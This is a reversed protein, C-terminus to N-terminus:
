AEAQEGFCCGLPQVRFQEVNCQWVFAASRSDTLERHALEIRVFVVVTNQADVLIGRLDLDIPLVLALRRFMMGIAAATFLPHLRQVFRVANEFVLRQTTRVILHPSWSCSGGGLSAENRDRRRRSA